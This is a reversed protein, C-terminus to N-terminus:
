AGRPLLKRLVFCDPPSIVRYYNPVTEAVEFGHREYFRRADDNATWVHLYVEKVDSLKAVADLAQRLLESGACRACTLLAANCSRAVSDATACHQKVCACVM